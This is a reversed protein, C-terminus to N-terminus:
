NWKWAMYNWELTLSVFRSTQPFSKPGNTKNLIQTVVMFEVLSIWQIDHNEWYLEQCDNWSLTPELLYFTEEKLYLQEVKFWRAKVNNSTSFLFPFPSYNISSVSDRLILKIQLISKLLNFLYIRYNNGLLYYNRFQKKLILM